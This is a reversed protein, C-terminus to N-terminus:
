PNKVRFIHIFFKTLFILVAKVIDAMSVAVATSVSSTGVGVHLCKKLFIM